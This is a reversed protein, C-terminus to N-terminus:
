ACGKKTAKTAVRLQQKVVRIAARCVPDIRKPM